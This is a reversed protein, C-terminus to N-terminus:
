DNYITLRLRAGDFYTTSLLDGDVVDQSDWHFWVQAETKTSTVAIADPLYGARFGLDSAVAVGNIGNWTFADSRAYEVVPEEVPHCADQPCGPTGMPVGANLHWERHADSMTALPAWADQADYM